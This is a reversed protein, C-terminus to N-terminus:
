EEVVELDPDDEWENLRMLLFCVLGAIAVAIVSFIMSGTGEHWYHFAEMQDQAVLYAMLAVRFGNVMFAIAVGAVLAVWRQVWSLPVLVLFLGTLSLVHAMSEIGSCGPYVEVAGTGLQINLGDRVVQFGSYYLVLTAFKATWPTPDFLIPLIVRPLGLFALVTMERGYQRLQSFGSALLGLGVGAVLPALLLFTTSPLGASRLLMLLILSAGVGSALGSSHLKLNPWRDKILSVVVGLFLLSSTFLDADDSRWSLTLHIAILGSAIALLWVHSNRLFRLDNPLTPAKTNM